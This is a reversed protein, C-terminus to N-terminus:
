FIAELGFGLWLSETEERSETERNEPSRSERAPSRGEGAIV